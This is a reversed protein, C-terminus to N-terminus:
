RLALVDLKSRTKPRKPPPASFVKWFRLSEDASASAVHGDPAASLHLVRQTHGKLVAVKEM